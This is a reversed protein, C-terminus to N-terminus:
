GFTVVSAWTLKDRDDKPMGPLLRGAFDDSGQAQIIGSGRSQWYRVSARIAIGRVWSPTPDFGKAGTWRVTNYGMTFVSSSTDLLVIRTAAGIYGSTSSRERLVWETTPVVTYTGGTDPQSSTAVELATATAIGEPLRLERGTCAVDECYTTTGSSPTRAFMRGTMGIIDTSVQGIIETLLEDSADDSTKIGIRQKVDGLSCLLGAGPDGPQIETSYERNPSTPFTNAANSPYWRYWSSADGNVDYYTYDLEGTTLTVSGINSYGSGGGTASREIQIRNIPGETAPWALLEALTELDPVSPHVRPM